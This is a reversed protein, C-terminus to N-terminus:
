TVTITGRMYNHIGCVYDYTGPEDFTVADSSAGGAIDGTDFSGDEAEATHAFDDGNDFVVSGGAAITLEAPDFAFEVIGVTQAAADMPAGTSTSDDDDGCAVLVLAAFCLITARRVGGRRRM